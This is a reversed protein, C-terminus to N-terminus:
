EYKVPHNILNWITKCSAPLHTTIQHRVPRRGVPSQQQQAPQRNARCLRKQGHNSLHPRFRQHCDARCRVWHLGGLNARHRCKPPQIVPLKRPQFQAVQQNAPHPRVPQRNAVRDQPIPKTGKCPAPQHDVPARGTTEQYIKLQGRQQSASPCPM